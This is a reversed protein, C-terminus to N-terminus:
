KQGRGERARSDGEMAAYNQSRSSLKKDIGADAFTPRSTRNEEPVASTGIGEAGRNLGVTAKQAKIL